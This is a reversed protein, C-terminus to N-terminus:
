CVKIVGLQVACLAARQRIDNLLNYYTKTSISLKVCTDAYDIGQYRDRAVVLRDGTCWTYVADVVQLWHEPWELHMGRVRVSRLPTVNRIARAATPDGIHNKNRAGQKGASERADLVAERIEREHYFVFDIKRMYETGTRRQM